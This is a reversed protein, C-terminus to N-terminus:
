EFNPSAIHFPEILKGMSYKFVRSHSPISMTVFPAGGVSALVLMGIHDETDSFVSTLQNGHLEFVTEVLNPPSNLDERWEALYVMGEAGMLRLFHYQPGRDGMLVEQWRSGDYRLVFGCSPNISDSYLATGMAFVNDPRDGWIDIIYVSHAGQVEHHYYEGWETGNWHSLGAGPDSFAQGGMWIDNSAFGIIARATCWVRQPHKEFWPEWQKGDYHWIYNAPTGGGGGTWVDNPSSEWLGTLINFETQLTDMKWVCDRPGPAVGPGVSNDRCSGFMLLAIVLAGTAVKQLRKVNRWESGWTSTKMEVIKGDKASRLVVLSNGESELM